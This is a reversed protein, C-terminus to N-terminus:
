NKTCEQWERPMDDKLSDYKSMPDQLGIDTTQQDAVAQVLSSLADSLTKEAEKIFSLYKDRRTKCDDGITETEELVCTQGCYM